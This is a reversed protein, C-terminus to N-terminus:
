CGAGSHKHAIVASTTAYNRMYDWSPDRAYYTQLSITDIESTDIGNIDLPWVNLNLHDDNFDGYVDTTIKVLENPNGNLISDLSVEQQAYQNVDIEVTQKGFQTTFHLNVQTVKDKLISGDKSESPDPQSFNIKIAECFSSMSAFSLLTLTFFKLKNM